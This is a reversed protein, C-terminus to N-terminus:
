SLEGSDKMGRVLSEFEDKTLDGSALPEPGHSLRLAVILMV